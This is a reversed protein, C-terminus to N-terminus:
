QDKLFYSFLARSGYYEGHHSFSRQHFSKLIIAVQEEFLRRNADQDLLPAKGLFWPISEM